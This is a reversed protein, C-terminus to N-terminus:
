KDLDDTLQQRLTEWPVGKSGDNFRRELEAAFNPDEVSLGPPSGSVSDM